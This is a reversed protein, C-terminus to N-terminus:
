QKVESNIKLWQIISNSIQLGTLDEIWLWQGMTNIELFYWDGNPTVIFDLAGFYLGFIDLLKSVKDKIYNPPEIISHPTNKIDYRRWDINAISSSQSEIKCAHHDQGVVTYRVEFSKKIYAQLVIPNENL